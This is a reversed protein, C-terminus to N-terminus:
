YSESSCRSFLSLGWPCDKDSSSLLSIILDFVCDSICCATNRRREPLEVRVERKRNVTNRAEENNSAERLVWEPRMIDRTM